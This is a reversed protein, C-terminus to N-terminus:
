ILRDGSTAYLWAPLDAKVATELEKGASASGHHLPRARRVRDIGNRRRCRLPQVAATSM